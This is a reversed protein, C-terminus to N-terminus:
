RPTLPHKTEQEATIRRRSRHTIARTVFVERLAQCASSRGIAERLLAAEPLTSTDLAPPHLTQV